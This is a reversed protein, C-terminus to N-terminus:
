ATRRHRTARGPIPTHPAAPRPALSTTDPSKARRELFERVHEPTYRAARGGPSTPIHGIEGRRRLAAVTSTPCGLYEAVQDERLLVPLGMDPTASPPTPPDSNM